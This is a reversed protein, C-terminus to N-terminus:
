RMIDTRSYGPVKKACIEMMVERIGAVESWSGVLSYLNSVLAYNVPKNPELNFLEHVVQKAMGINGHERCAGVFAGLADGNSGDPMRGLLHHAENLRGARGLLDIVCAYHAWNPRICYQEKMSIFYKLGLEVLGAHACVSLVGLFAVDDLQIGQQLLEDFTEIAERHLGHYACSFVMSSWTVLNPKPIMDFVNFANKIFGNKAYALILANCVSIFAHLGCKLLYGHIQFLENAATSHACSSLISSATLDDPRFGERPMQTLLKMAERTNGEQAYGVIIANWSIINRVIMGDFVQHADNIQHFKAYMNILSTCVVIDTHFGLGFVIGHIASGIESGLLICAQILISLTFGDGISGNHRMSRYLVFADKGFGNKSYCSVMVNWLVVDRESIEDFLMRADKVYGFKSYADMLATCIHSHSLFGSKMIMCHVLKGKFPEGLRICSRLLNLFNRQAYHSACTNQNLSLNSSATTYRIQSFLLISHLFSTYRARFTFHNNSKLKLM